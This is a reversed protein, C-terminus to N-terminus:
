FRDPWLARATPEMEERTANVMEAPWEDLSDDTILKGVKRLLGWAREYPEPRQRPIDSEIVRRPTTDFFAFFCQRPDELQEETIRQYKAADLASLNPIHAQLWESWRLSKGLKTKSLLCDRGQLSGLHILTAMHQLVAARAGEISEQRDRM